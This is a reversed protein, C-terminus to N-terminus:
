FINGHSPFVAELLFSIQPISVFHNGSALFDTELLRFLPNATFIYKCYASFLKVVLIVHFVSFHNGTALSDTEM